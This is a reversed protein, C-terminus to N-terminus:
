YIISDMYLKLINKDHIPNKSETIIDIGYDYCLSILSKLSEDKESWINGKRLPSYSDIKQGYEVKSDNLHVLSIKSKTISQIDDYLNIVSEHNDFDCLGSAFAHQTDLCVGIKTRDIGEYIHRLQDLNFGLESGQGAAIELILNFPILNNKSYTLYGNNDIQNLRHCVNEITGVKGIHLVCACPLDKVMDLEKCVVDISKKCDKKALNAILPCHVYFTKNNNNCYKISKEKDDNTIEKVDYGISNGLFIQLTKTNCTSLTDYLTNKLKVRCGYRSDSKRIINLNLHPSICSM